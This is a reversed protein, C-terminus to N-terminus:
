THLFAVRVVYAAYVVHSDKWNGVITDNRTEFVSAVILSLLLTLVLTLTNPNVGFLPNLACNYIAKM